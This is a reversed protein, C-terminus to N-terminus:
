VPVVLAEKTPMPRSGNLQAIRADAFLCADQM